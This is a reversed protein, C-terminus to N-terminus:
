QCCTICKRVYGSVLSGSGNLGATSVSGVPFAARPQQVGNVKMNAGNSLGGSGGNGSGSSLSSPAPAVNSRRQPGALRNEKELAASQNLAAATGKAHFGASGSQRRKSSNVKASNISTVNSYEASHNKQQVAAEEQALEYSPKSHALHVQDFWPDHPPVAGNSSSSFSHYKPPLTLDVFMQPADFEFLPDVYAGGGDAGSSVSRRKAMMM